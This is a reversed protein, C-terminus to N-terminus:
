HQKNVMNRSAYAIAEARNKLHLKELLRQLHTRVTSEGIFLRGAIEINTLGEGLLKLVERERASLKPGPESKDRFEAMLRAAMRPSLSPEGQATRRVAESVETISASKLLYGEAGYKIARFLDDENESVTLIVIKSAPAKEKIVAMAELGSCAPMYIDMLIIDPQFKVALDIAELGNSAEAVVQIDSEVRLINALGARVVAHDDAILIKIHNTM